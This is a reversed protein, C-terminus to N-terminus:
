RKKALSLAFLELLNEAQPMICEPLRVEQYNVPAMTERWTALLSERDHLLQALERQFAEHFVWINGWKDRWCEREHEM